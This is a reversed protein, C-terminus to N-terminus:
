KKTETIRWEIKLSATTPSPFTPLETGAQPELTDLPPPLRPLVGAAGAPHQEGGGAQLVNANSYKLLCFISSVIFTGVLSEVCRHAPSALDGAGGGPCNNEQAAQQQPDRPPLEGGEAACGEDHM